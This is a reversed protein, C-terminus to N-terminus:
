WSSQCRKPLDGAPRSTRSMARSRLTFRKAQSVNRVRARLAINHQAHILGFALAVQGGEQTVGDPRTAGDGDFLQM